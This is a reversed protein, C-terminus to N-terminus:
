YQDPPVFNEDTSLNLRAWVSFIDVANGSSADIFDGIWRVSGDCLAVNVGGPHRSRPCAQNNSQGPPGYCGMGLQAMARVGGVSKQAVSCGAMNDAYLASCNPGYADDITHAGMASPGAGGIAWTGRIDIENVGVLLEGIMITHSTGDVIQALKTSLNGGMVGRIQPQQWNEPQGSCGHGGLADCHVTDSFFGAGANAGYNGRGWNDGMHSISSNGSGNLPQRNNDDSPCLMVDLQASRAAANAASTIPQDLDFASYVNQQELHPLILIVWNPGLNDNLGQDMPSGAPWTAAPPFAGNAAHYLHLAIGIQKVNNSCQARRAAERAAQVAPLLLAVLVGSIAIVVLLEVLTFAARKM